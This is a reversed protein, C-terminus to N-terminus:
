KSNFIWPLLIDSSPDILRSKSNVPRNISKMIQGHTFLPCINKEVVYIESHLHSLQTFVPIYYPPRYSDRTLGCDFGIDITLSNVDIDLNASLEDTKLILRSRLKSSYIQDILFVLHKYKANVVDKLRKYISEWDSKVQFTEKTLDSRTIKGFSMFASLNNLNKRSISLLDGAIILYRLIAQISEFHNKELRRRAEANSFHHKFGFWLAQIDWYPISYTNSTGFELLGTIAHVKIHFYMRELDDLKELNMTGKGIIPNQQKEKEYVAHISSLFQDKSRLVESKKTFGM